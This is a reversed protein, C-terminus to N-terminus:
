LLNWDIDIMLYSISTSNQMKMFFSLENLLNNDIKMTNIINDKNDQSINLTDDLLEFIENIKSFLQTRLIVYEWIYIPCHNKRGVGNFFDYFSKHDYEYFKLINATLYLSYNYEIWLLTEFLRYLDQKSNKTFLHIALYATNLIVSMFETYAESLNLFPKDIAWNYQKNIGVLLNDLGVLHILEHYLLKIIEEKKSVIIIKKQRYTIGSVNFGTSIKHQNEFIEEYNKMNNPFEITRNNEDLSIDITLGTYDYNFMNCFTNISHLVAAMYGINKEFNEFIFNTRINKNNIKLVFSHTNNMANIDHQYKSEIVHNLNKDFDIFINKLTNINKPNINELILEKNYADLMKELLKYIKQNHVFKKCFDMGFNKFKNKSSNTLYKGFIYRVDDNNCIM